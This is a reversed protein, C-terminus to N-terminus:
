YRENQIKKDMPIYVAFCVGDQVNNVEIRGKLHKEIITKSMYLGLGTGTQADKTSFYPEFIKPMIEKQIGGGNDCVSTILMSGNSSFSVEIKRENERHEVLAEKANKLLNLYVQLLERSYTLVTPLEAKSIVLKIQSNLLSKGMVGEAEQMVSYIDTEEKTKNPRFFNRFDDITKSLYETQKLIGLSQERVSEENLEELQIDVLLNNAEMAIITIPQRWQHAIMGIMEGMAAHRSQTIMIEEQNLMKQKILERFTTDIIFSMYAEKGNFIVKQISMDVNYTTNDKRKQESSFFTRDSRKGADVEKLYETFIEKDKSERLEYPTIEKLEKLTYGVNECASKNAYIFKLSEKDYIYIENSVEQLILGLEINKDREANLKERLRIKETIDLKFAIYGDVEGEPTFSPVITSDEWFYSGDKAINKVDSQWINGSSIEAWMKAYQEQSTEGSKVLRPNQNILEEKSYGTIKTYNPNIYEITGNKDTIVVSMPSRELASKLKEVDQHALYEKTINISIIGLSVRNDYVIKFGLNRYFMRENKENVFEIKDEFVGDQLIKDDMEKIHAVTDAPLYDELVKGVITDQHFFRNAIQNAYIVRRNEDKIIVIAPFHEIFEEFQKKQM